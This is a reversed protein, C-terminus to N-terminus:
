KTGNEAWYYAGGIISTGIGVVIGVAPGSFGVASSVSAFTVLMGFSTILLLALRRTM